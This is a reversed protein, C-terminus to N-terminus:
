FEMRCKIYALDKDDVFTFLRDDNSEFIYCGGELTLGTKFDWGLKVKLSYGPNDDVLRITSVIEGYIHENFFKDELRILLLKNFFPDTYKDDIYGSQMWEILVLGNDGWINYDAGIAYAYYKDPAIHTVAYDGAQGSAAELYASIYDAYEAKVVGPMNFSYMAEARVSLKELTFATDMGLCHVREYVTRFDIYNKGSSEKVIFPCYISNSNMGNFYVLHFDLSGLTGGFRAACSVGDLSTGRGESDTYDVEVENGRMDLYDGEYKWFGSPVYPRNHVPTVALELSLDGFLAKLSLAYVGDFRDDKDTVMFERNDPRDMYNTVTFADATGWIFLQKGLKFQFKEGGSLYVERLEIRNGQRPINPNDESHYYYGNLVTKACLSGTSYEANLNVRGELKVIEYDGEDNEVTSFHNENQIFGFFDWKGTGKAKPQEQKESGSDSLFEKDFDEESKAFLGAPSFVLWFMLAFLFFQIRKMIKM